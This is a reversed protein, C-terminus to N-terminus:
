FYPLCGSVAAVASILRPYLVFLLLPLLLLFLFFFGCSCFIIVEGIPRGYYSCFYPFCPIRLRITRERQQITWLKLTSSNAVFLTWNESVYSCFTSGLNSVFSGDRTLCSGSVQLAYAGSVTASDFSIQAGSYRLQDRM